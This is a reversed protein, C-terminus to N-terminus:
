PPSLQSKLDFADNNSIAGKQNGGRIEDLSIPLKTDLLNGLVNQVGFTM